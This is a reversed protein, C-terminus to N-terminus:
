DEAGPERRLRKREGRQAKDALRHTHVWVPMATKKRSKRPVLAEALLAAFRALAARRNAAQTRFRSATVRLIGERSVRSPFAEAIRCKQESSLSPCNALDFLLTVRSAVKNVNQGGPGSSRSHIFRLEAEALTVGGPLVIVADPVAM